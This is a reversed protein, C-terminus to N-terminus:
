LVYEMQVDYPEQQALTQNIEAAFTCGLSRYAAQGEVSSHASIYLKKAGLRKAEAAALAFLQRGIGQRRYPESVHFLTLEFYQRASGFAEKSVALYGVLQDCAFAGYAFWAGQLKESLNGAVQRRQALDWDETFPNPITVWAGDLFRWSEQVVQHRIFTDLSHPSVNTADLRTFQITNM